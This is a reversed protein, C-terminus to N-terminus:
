ECNAHNSKMWPFEQRVDDGCDSMENPSRKGNNNNNYGYAQAVEYNSNGNALARNENQNFGQYQNYNQYHDPSAADGLLGALPSTRDSSSSSTYPLQSPMESRPVQGVPTSASKATASSYNQSVAKKGHRLIAELLSHPESPPPTIVSPPSHQPQQPMQHYGSFCSSQGYYNRPDSAPYPWYPCDNNTYYTSSAM